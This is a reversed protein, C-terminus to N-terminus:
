NVGRQQDDSRKAIICLAITIVGVPVGIFLGVVLGLVFM